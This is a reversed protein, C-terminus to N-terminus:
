FTLFVKSGIIKWYLSYYGWCLLWVARHVEENIYERIKHIGPSSHTYKHPKWQVGTSYVVARGWQSIGHEVKQEKDAQGAQSQKQTRLPEMLTLEVGSNFVAKKTLCFIHCLVFVTNTVLNSTALLSFPLEFILAKRKCQILLLHSRHFFQTFISLQYCCFTDSFSQKEFIVHLVLGFSFNQILIEM